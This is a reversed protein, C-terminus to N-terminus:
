SSGGSGGRIEGERRRDATVKPTTTKKAKQHTQLHHALESTNPTRRNNAPM